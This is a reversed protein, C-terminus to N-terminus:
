DWQIVIETYAAGKTLSHPMQVKVNRGGSIEVAKEAWGGIRYEVYPSPEPFKTIHVVFKKEDESVPIIESPQYYSTIVAGLKGILFEPHGAQVFSKYVGNLAMDASFRGLEWAGKLDGRYFLHCMQKTPEVMVSKIPYWNGVLIPSKYVKQANEPLSNVWQEFGNKGFKKKIFEPLAVIATGKVEM